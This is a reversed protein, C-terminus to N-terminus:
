LLEKDFLPLVCDRYENFDPVSIEFFKRYMFAKRLDDISTVPFLCVESEDCM